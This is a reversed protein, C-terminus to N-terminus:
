TGMPAVLLGASRVFSQSDPMFVLTLQDLRGFETGRIQCSRAANFPSRDAGRQRQRATPLSKRSLVGISRTPGAQTKPRVNRHICCSHSRATRGANRSTLRRCTVQHVPGVSIIIDEADAGRGEAIRVRDSMAKRYTSFSSDDASDSEQQASSNPASETPREPFTPEALYALLWPSSILLSSFLPNLFMGTSLTPGETRIAGANITRESSRSMFTACMAIPFGPLFGPFAGFTDLTLFITVM